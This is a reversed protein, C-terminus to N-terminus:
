FGQFFVLIVCIKLLNMRFIMIFWVSSRPAHARSPCPCTLLALVPHARARARSSSCPLFALPTYSYCNHSELPAFSLSLRALPHPPSLPLSHARLSFSLPRPPPPPSVSVCPPHFIYINSLRRARPLRSLYLCARSPPRFLSLHSPAFSLSLSLRTLPRFLSISTPARPSSLSISLSLPACPSYLPARPVFSLLYLCVHSPAFSLSLRSPAFSLSLSLSSLSVPARSPAFSLSIYVISVPALPPSLSISLSLSLLTHPLNIYIICLFAFLLGVTFLGVVFLCVLCVFWDFLCLFCHPRVTRWNQTSVQRAFCVFLFTFLCCLFLLCVLLLCVFFLWAFPLYYYYVLVNSLVFLFAFLGTLCVFSVIRGCQADIKHQSRVLLVFLFFLLCVAFFCCVFWCYVFSFCDHLRCIIITFLSMQYSLCFLLCVPWVFLPFLAAVSHTLKTNLGSSCFLCFSFYVFLLSVAFLGVTFLRFVIM